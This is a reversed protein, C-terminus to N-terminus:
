ENFIEELTRLHIANCVIYEDFFLMMISILIYTLSTVWIFSFIGPLLILFEGVRHLFIGKRTLYVVPKNNIKEIHNTVASLSLYMGIAIFLIQAAYIQGEIGVIM